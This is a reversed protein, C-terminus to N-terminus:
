HGDSDTDPPATGYFDSKALRDFMEGMANVMNMGYDYLAKAAARPSGMKSILSPLRLLATDQVPNTVHDSSGLLPESLSSYIERVKASTQEVFTDRVYGTLKEVGTKIAVDRLAGAFGDGGLPGQASRLHDSLAKAVDDAAGQLVGGATRDFAAGVMEHIPDKYSNNFYRTAMESATAAADPDGLAGSLITGGIEKGEDQLSRGLRERVFDRGQEALPSVVDHVRSLAIGAFPAGPEPAPAQHDPPTVPRASGVKSLDFEDGGAGTQPASAAFVNNETGANRTIEELLASKAEQTHEEVRQEFRDNVGEEKGKLEEMKQDRAETRRALAEKERQSAKAAADILRRDTEQRNREREKRASEERAADAKRQRAEEDRRKQDEKAQREQAEQERQARAAEDKQRQQDDRYKQVAARCASVATSKRDGVESMRDHLPQCAAQTCSGALTMRDNKHQDLCKTHAGTVEERLSDWEQALANCTADDQPAIPDLPDMPLPEQWQAYSSTLVGIQVLLSVGLVVWLHAERRNKM